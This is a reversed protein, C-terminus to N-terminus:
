QKEKKRYLYSIIALNVWAANFFSQSVTIFLLFFLPIAIYDIKIKKIFDFIIALHAVGGVIGFALFAYTLSNTFERTVEYTGHILRDFYLNNSLFANNVNALGSGLFKMKLPEIVLMYFGKGLREHFVNIHLLKNRAYEFADTFFFLYIIIALIILTLYIYIKERKSKKILNIILIAFVLFLGSIGLTTTSLLVAISMLFASLIKRKNLNIVIMPIIYAGFASPESFLSNFRYDISGWSPNDFSFVLFSLKGTFPSTGIVYYQFAQIFIVFTLIISIFFYAKELLERKIFTLLFFINIFYFSIRYLNKLLIISDLYNPQIVLLIFSHFYVFLILFLLEKHFIVKNKKFLFVMNMILLLSQGLPTGIIIEYQDLVPTLAFILTYFYILKM